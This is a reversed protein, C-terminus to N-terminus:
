KKLKNIIENVESEKIWQSKERETASNYKENDVILKITSTRNKYIRYIAKETLEYDYGTLELIKESLTDAKTNSRTKFTVVATPNGEDATKSHQINEAQTKKSSCSCDSQANAVNTTIAFLMIIISILSIKM